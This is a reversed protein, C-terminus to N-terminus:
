MSPLSHTIQPIGDGVFRQPEDHQRCPDPDGIGRLLQVRTWELCSQDITILRGMSLYNGWRRFFTAMRIIRIRKSRLGSHARWSAAPLLPASTRRSLLRCSEVDCTLHLYTLLYM